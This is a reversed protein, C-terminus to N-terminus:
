EIKIKKGLFKPEKKLIHIDLLMKVKAFLERFIVTYSLTFHINKANYADAKIGNKRAIYIARENHFEQSIITCDTQGFVEKCRIVSDLTRFGAYDLFIAKSPIGYKLLEKKMNKPENYYINHNDGSLLIYKIKGAKYLSAAARIRYKFYLNIKGSKFFKSTGLVLGVRHYPIKKIDNYIYNDSFNVIIFYSSIIVILNFIFISFFIIMLKKLKSKKTFFVSKKKSFNIIILFIIKIKALLNKLFFM